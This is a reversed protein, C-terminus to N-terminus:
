SHVHCDRAATEKLADGGDASSQRQRVDGGGLREIVELLLVVGAPDDAFERAGLRHRLRQNLFADAANVADGPSLLVFEPVLEFGAAHSIQEDGVFVRSGAHGIAIGPGGAAGADNAHYRPRADGVSQRSQAFRQEIGRRHDRNDAVHAIAILGLGELHMREALDIQELGDALADVTDLADLLNGGRHPLREAVGDGALRPRHRHHDRVVQEDFRRLEFHRRRRLM